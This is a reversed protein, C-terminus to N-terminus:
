LALLRALAFDTVPFMDSFIGPYYWHSTGVIIMRNYLDRTFAAGTSGGYASCMGNCPDVVGGNLRIGNADLRMWGFQPQVGWPGSLYQTGGVWLTDDIPTQVLGTAASNHALRESVYVGHFQGGSAFTTDLAGNATLRAMGVITHDGNPATVTGVTVIKGSPQVVVGSAKDTSSGGLDFSVTTQGGDGFSADLSGNANLRLLAFDYDDDSALAEGAVVIKGDPQLAIANAASREVDRIAFPVQVYGSNAFTTDFSGDALLRVVLFASPFSTNLAGHTGEGALLIRGDRQIAVANFRMLPNNQVSLFQWVHDGSAPWFTTDLSGNANLRFVAAATNGGNFTTYVDGAVVIKGDAQVAVARATRLKDGYIHTSVTVKGGSGFTSDLSGDANLRQVAFLSDQSTSGVVIIKADPQTTTAYAVASESPGNDWYTTTVGNGSFTSDPTGPAANAAAGAAALLCTTLCRGLNM